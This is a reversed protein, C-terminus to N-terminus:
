LLVFNVDAVFAEEGRFDEEVGFNGRRVEECRKGFDDIVDDLGTRDINSTSEVIYGRRWQNQYFLFSSASLFITPYFMTKDPPEVM